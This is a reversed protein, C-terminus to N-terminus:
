CGSGAFGQPQDRDFVQRKRLEAVAVEIQGQQRDSPAGQGDAVGAGELADGFRRDFQDAGAQCDDKKLPPM